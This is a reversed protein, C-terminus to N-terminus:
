SILSMSRFMCCTNSTSIKHRRVFIIRDVCHQSIREVSLILPSVYLNNDAGNVVVLGSECIMYERMLQLEEINVNTASNGVVFLSPCYSVCISDDVTGRFGLYSRLPFAFNLVGTVGQVRQIVQMNLLSSIGWGALFVHDDPRRRVLEQVRERILTLCMHTLTKPDVDEDFKLELKEVCRVAAPLLNRFMNEHAHKIVTQSAM